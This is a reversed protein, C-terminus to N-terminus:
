LEDWEVKKLWGTGRMGSHLKDHARKVASNVIVADTGPSKPDLLAKFESMQLPSMVPRTVRGQAKKKKAGAADAVADRGYTQRYAAAIKPRQEPPADRLIELVGQADKDKILQHLHAAEAQARGQEDGQLLARARIKDDPDELEECYITKNCRTIMNIGLFM